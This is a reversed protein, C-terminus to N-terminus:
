LLTGLEQIVRRVSTKKRPDCPIVASAAAMRLRGAVEDPSMAGALDQKTAVVLIPARRRRFSRLIRRAPTLSLRDTSDVLLLLGDMEQALIKWMFEFREQGPTGYLHFIRDNFTTRGYDMAVTTTGKVAALDDTVRRDTSVVPIESAPSIFVSKGANFAGAVVIKYSEAM